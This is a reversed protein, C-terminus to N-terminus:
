KLRKRDSSQPLSPSVPDSTSLGAKKRAKHREYAEDFEKMARELEPDPEVDSRPYKMGLKIERIGASFIVISIFLLIWFLLRALNASLSKHDECYERKAKRGSQRSLYLHNNINEKYVQFDLESSNLYNFYDQYLEKSVSQTIVFPKGSSFEGTFTVYYIHISRTSRHRRGYRGSSRIVDVDTGTVQAKASDVYELRVNPQFLYYFAAILSLALVVVGGRMLSVGLNYSFHAGDDKKFLHVFNNFITM